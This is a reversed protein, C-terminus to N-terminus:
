RCHVHRACRYFRINCACPTTEGAKFKIVSQGVELVQQNIPKSGGVVKGDDDVDQVVVKYITTAGPLFNRGYIEQTDGPTTKEGTGAALWKSGAGEALKAIGKNTQTNWSHM